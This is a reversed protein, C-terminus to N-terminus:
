NPLEARTAPSAANENDPEIVAEAELGDGLDIRETIPQAMSRTLTADTHFQPETLVFTLANTTNKEQTDENTTCAATLAIVACLFLLKINKKM